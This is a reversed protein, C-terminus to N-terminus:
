LKLFTKAVDIIIQAIKSTNYVIIDSITVYKQAVATIVVFANNTLDLVNTILNIFNIKNFISSSNNIINQFAVLIAVNIKLIKKIWSDAAFYRIKSSTLYYKKKYKM